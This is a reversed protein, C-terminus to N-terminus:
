IASTIETVKWEGEEKKLGAHCKRRSGDLELTYEIFCVGDKEETENIEIVTKSLIEVTAAFATSDKLSNEEWKEKFTDLYEKMSLTDCLNYAKDFDGTKVADVFETMVVEPDAKQPDAPKGEKASFLAAAGIVGIVAGAIFTYKYKKQM